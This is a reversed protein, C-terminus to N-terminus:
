RYCRSDGSQVGLLQINDIYTVFLYLQNQLRNQTIFYSKKNTQKPDTQGFSFTNIVADAYFFHCVVVM